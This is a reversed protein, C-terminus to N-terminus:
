CLIPVSPGVSVLSDGVRKGTCFVDPRRRQAPQAKGHSQGPTEARNEPQHGPVGRDRQEQVGRRDAETNTAGESITFGLFNRGWSAKQRESLWRHGKALHRPEPVTPGELVAKIAMSLEEHTADKLVYGDAGAQLAALIYEETKHVTMVIIRTKPFRKKIDKM